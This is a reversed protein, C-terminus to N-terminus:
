GEPEDLQGDVWAQADTVDKFDGIHEIGRYLRIFTPGFDDPVESSNREQLSFGRYEM